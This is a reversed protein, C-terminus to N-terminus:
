ENWRCNFISVLGTQGPGDGSGSINFFQMNVSQLNNPLNNAGSPQQQPGQAQSTDSGIALSVNPAPQGTQPQPLRVSGIGPQPMTPGPGPMRIGPRTANQVPAVVMGTPAGTTPCQIGLSEYARRMDPASPNPTQSPPQPPNTVAIFCTYRKLCLIM